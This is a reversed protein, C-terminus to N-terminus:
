PFDLEAIKLVCNGLGLHPKYLLVLDAETISEKLTLVEKEENIIVGKLVQIDRSLNRKLDEVMKGFTKEWIEGTGCVLVPLVKFTESSLTKDM